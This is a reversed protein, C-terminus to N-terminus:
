KLFAGWLNMVTRSDGAVAAPSPLVDYKNLMTTAGIGGVSLLPPVAYGIGRNTTDVGLVYGSSPRSALLAQVM